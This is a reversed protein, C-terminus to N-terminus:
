RGRPVMRARIWSTIRDLAAPAMTEEITAYEAVSGTACTQFLHNLGPLEETTADRNGGATLASRIRPLNQISLVQTDKGGNLALVPCRVKELAPRPDYHLFFQMWPSRLMAVRGSVFEDLDGVSGRREPPLSALQQELVARIGAAIAASDATGGATALIRQQVDRQALATEEDAGVSRSVLYAQEVLISDGPVGPAALLVLFAVDRDTSAVMPALLGGESHGILGIRKRDIERRTRLFAVVARADSAFDASTALGFAGTSKGVGRDDTRLVAIGHRSLHDALVWFPKHGFITEDRDEPGSGTLLVACPFPGKGEPVTLTGAITVGPADSNEFSVDIARYPFPAKPEQPRRPAAEAGQPHLSLPLRIGGQRWEGAIEDGAANMAGAYSGGIKRLEFTLSDGAFAIADIELGMAGQDPSDMSARLSGDEAREVHLVLRLAGQLKGEWTGAIEHGAGDSAAIAGGTTALSLLAAAIAARAWRIGIM